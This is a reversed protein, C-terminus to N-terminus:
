FDNWLSSGSKWPRFERIFILIIDYRLVTLRSREAFISLNVVANKKIIIWFNRGWIYLLVIYYYINNHHRSIKHTHIIYYPLHVHIHEAVANGTICRGLTRYLVPGAGWIYQLIYTYTSNPLYTCNYLLLLRSLIEYAYRSHRFQPCVFSPSFSRKVRRSFTDRLM